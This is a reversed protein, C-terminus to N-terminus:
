RVQSPPLRQLVLVVVAGSLLGFLLSSSLMIPLLTFIGPHPIFLWYAMYFQCFMHTMAALVGLGIPGVQLHRLWSKGGRSGEGGKKCCKNWNWLLGLLLLSGLAGSLSLFFPPALFTGLVIGGAVVRILAVWFAVRWGFHMLALLTVVNALGPKVGPLPSPIATEAIHILIALAALAAVLHDEASVRMSHRQALGTVKDNTDM